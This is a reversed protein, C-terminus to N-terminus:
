RKAEALPIGTLTDIGKLLISVAKDNIFIVKTDNNYSRIVENGKQETNIPSGWFTEFKSENMTVRLINNKIQFLTKSDKEDFSQGSPITLMRNTRSFQYYGAPTKIIVINFIHRENFTLLGKGAKSEPLYNTMNEMFYYKEILPANEFQDDSLLPLVEGTKDALEPIGGRIFPYDISIMAIYEKLDILLDGEEDNLDTIKLFILIFVTFILITLLIYISKNKM